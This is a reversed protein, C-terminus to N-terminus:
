IRTDCRALAAVAEAQLRLLGGNLLKALRM